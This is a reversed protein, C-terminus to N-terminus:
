LKVKFSPYIYLQSKAVNGNYNEKIQTIIQNCINDDTWPDILIEDFLDDPDIDFKYIDSSMMSKYDDRSNCAKTYILRVEEEYAFPTRKILLSLVQNVNTDDTVNAKKIYDIIEDMELYRVKGMFYCIAHFPDKENYFANMLKGVTTKVKVSTPIKGHRSIYDCFTCTKCSYHNTYNRWLGDCEEKLSWCLGYYLERTPELSVSQGDRLEGESKMLFNEFPDDWCKPKVLCLKKEKLVSLFRELSYIRFIPTDFDLEILNANMFAKKQEQNNITMGYKSDIMQIARIHKERSFNEM